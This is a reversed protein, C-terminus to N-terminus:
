RYDEPKQPPNQQKSDISNFSRTYGGFVKELAKNIESQLSKLKAYDLAQTELANEAQSILTKSGAAKLAQLKKLMGNRLDEILKNGLELRPSIEELFLKANQLISKVQDLNIFGKQPASEITEKALNLKTIHENIKL